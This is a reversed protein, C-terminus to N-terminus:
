LIYLLLMTSKWSDVVIKFAEIFYTQFSILPGMYIHMYIYIYIYIKKKKYNFLSKYWINLFHNNSRFGM